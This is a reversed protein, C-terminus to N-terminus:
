RTMRPVNITLYFKVGEMIIEPTEKELDVIADHNQSAVSLTLSVKQPLKIEQSNNTKLNIVTDEYQLSPVSLQLPVTQPTANNSSKVTNTTPDIKDKVFQALNQKLM